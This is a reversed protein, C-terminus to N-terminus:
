KKQQNESSGDPHLVESVSGDKNVAILDGNKSVKFDGDSSEVKKNQQDYRNWKGDEKKWSSGDMIKLESPNGDAGYTVKNTTGDPYTISTPNGNIDKTIQSHKDNGYETTSGDPHKIADVSGDKRSAVIDGDKSVNIDGVEDDVKKGDKYRNWEGNEKKWTSGDRNDIQDEKGNADYHVKNTSGDPYTISTPRGDIDRTIQSNKDNGYETTSGDAHKIADVSGDKRMSVIDGEKSVQFGGVEDDVKKGNKYRNWDDGEKKWTSGDRAKLESPNGDSDYKVKNTSGDPYTISTPNGDADRTIQSHQDTGYETTSGDAHKVADISGDKRTACIDGEKTTQIDGIECELQKGNQDYRNWQGNEKKYTSGDRADVEKPSGDNGYVIKNKSGDPYTIETPRNSADREISGNNNGDVKQVAVSDYFTPQPPLYEKTQADRLGGKRAQYYDKVGNSHDEMGKNSESRAADAVAVKSDSKESMNNDGIKRNDGM